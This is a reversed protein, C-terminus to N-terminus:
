QCALRIQTTEEPVNSFLQRGIDSAVQLHGALGELEPQLLLASTVVRAGCYDFIGHDIQTQMANAYGRKSYTNQDAAGLAILHVNLHRLKKELGGDPTDAYAWGGIFVRDIWGKLLAPM